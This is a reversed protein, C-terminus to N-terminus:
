DHDTQASRWRALPAYNVAHYRESRHQYQKARVYAVKAVIEAWERIRPSRAVPRYGAARMASGCVAEVEATEQESLKDQWDDPHGHIPQQIKATRIVPVYTSSSSQFDLMETSFDEELFGCLRRVVGDPDQVLREYRVVTRQDPPVLGEVQAVGRTWVDKWLIANMVTDDRGMEFRNLSAVVARPDREMVVVKADPFIQMLPGVHFIHLPSKEGWREKGCSRAWTMCPLSLLLAFDPADLQQLQDQVATLDVPPHFDRRCIAMFKEVVSPWPDPSSRYCEYITKFYYTEPAIAFRPHANLILRMMTTGSRPAGVIFVPPGGRTRM